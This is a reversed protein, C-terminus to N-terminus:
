TAIVSLQDISTNETHPMGNIKYTIKFRLRVVEKSPNAILMVQSISPPPFIPNYAKMETSTAAQLKVRMAKPVAVQVSFDTVAQTSTSITSLITTIVNSNATERTDKAQHLLTKIGDNDFVLSPTTSIPQLADLPVTYNEQHMLPPSVPAKPQQPQQQQIPTQQQQVPPTATNIVPPQQVVSPAPVSIDLLSNANTDATNSLLNSDTVPEM